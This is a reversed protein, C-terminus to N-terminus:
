PSTTPRTVSNIKVYKQELGDPVPPDGEAVPERVRGPLRGRAVKNYIDDLNTNVLFEFRDPNNERAATSDTSANYNPNRVLTDAADRRLRERAEAGLLLQTLKDSGEIMYPGRRSSTSATSAPSARSASRSRRRSRGPAPMALRYPFDGTPATLDFVITSNNPTKIGVISKTKGAAYADWGKIVKYYFGYQAATRRARLGSSRTSSTRRPSRATSRRRRVQDRRSSSRTARAATRRSRAGDDRHRPSSSTARPAPSTTTASSRASSCARTSRSRTARPIRRHPRLQEDLRVVVGLRCPVHRRCPEQEGGEAVRGGLHRRASRGPRGCPRRRRAAVHDSEHSEEKSHTSLQCQSRHASSLTPGTSM